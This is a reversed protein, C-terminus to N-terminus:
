TVLEAVRQVADKRSKESRRRRNASECRGEGKWAGMLCGVREALTACRRRVVHGRRASRRCVAAVMGAWSIWGASAASGMKCSFLCRKTRKGILCGATQSIYLFASALKQVASSTSRATRGRVSAGSRRVARALPVALGSWCPCGARALEAVAALALGRGRARRGARTDARVGALEVCCPSCCGHGGATAAGVPQRRVMQQVWPQLLSQGSESKGCAERPALAGLM